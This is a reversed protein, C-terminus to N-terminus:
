FNAQITIAAQPWVAWSQQIARSNENITVTISGTNSDNQASLYAVTGQSNGETENGMFSYSWPLTVSIANSSAGSPLAYTVSASTVGASGTVQYQGPVSKPGNSCGSAGIGLLLAGLIALFRKTTM